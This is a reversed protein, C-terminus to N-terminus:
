LALHSALLSGVISDVICLHKDHDYGTQLLRHLSSYYSHMTLILTPSLITTSPIAVLDCTDVNVLQLLTDNIGTLTYCIYGYHALISLM